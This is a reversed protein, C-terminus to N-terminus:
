SAPEATRRQKLLLTAAKSRFNPAAFAEMALDDSEMQKLDNVTPMVDNICHLFVELDYSNWRQWPPRRAPWFEPPIDASDLVVHHAFLVNEAASAVVNDESRDGASRRHESLAADAAVAAAVLLDGYETM